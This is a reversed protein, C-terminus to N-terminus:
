KSSIVKFINGEGKALDLERHCAEIVLKMVAEISENSPCCFHVSRAGLAVDMYLIAGLLAGGLM